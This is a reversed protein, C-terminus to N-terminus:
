VTVALGSWVARWVSGNGVVLCGSGTGVGEATSARGNTAYALQGVPATTPLGAVTYGTFPAATQTVAIGKAITQQTLYSARILEQLATIIRTVGGQNDLMQNSGYPGDSM